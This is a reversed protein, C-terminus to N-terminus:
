NGDVDLVIGGDVDAAYAPVSSAVGSAVAEQRRASLERSRPGPLTGEIRRVQELRYQIDPLTETM